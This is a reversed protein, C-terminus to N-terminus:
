KNIRSELLEELLMKYDKWQKQFEVPYKKGTILLDGKIKKVISNMWESENGFNNKVVKKLFGISGVHEVKIALPQRILYVDNFEDENLSLHNHRKAFLEYGVIGWSCPMTWGRGGIGHEFPKYIDEKFTKYYDWVFFKKDIEAERLINALRFSIWDDEDMPVIIDEEFADSDIDDYENKCPDIYSHLIIHDFKNDLYTASAIDRLKNRYDMLKLSFFSDWMGFIPFVYQNIKYDCIKNHLWYEKSRRIILIIKRSM